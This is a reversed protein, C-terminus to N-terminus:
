PANAKIFAALGPNEPFNTALRQAVVAADALKRERVLMEWLAFEAETRDFFAAETGAAEHVAILARKRSGGGLLWRTGRAMKTDVIYDIWARAVRARVHRPDRKLVADLSKRAEWYENWGTRRGLTGLHLWVYNLDLKGLLFLAADDDPHTRLHGRAVIQGQSTDSLFAKLWQACPICQKFALAKDAQNGLAEKLQFHLASTRIEFAALDQPNSARLVLALAAADDYRGTYFLRQADTLLTREVAVNENHSLVQLGGASLCVAGGIVSAVLLQLIKRM